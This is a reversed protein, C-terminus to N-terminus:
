ARQGCAGCRCRRGHTGSDINVTTYNVGDTSYAFVRSNFGTSTGRQAWSVNIQQYGKTNVEFVVHMGNNSNGSGGHPALSGGSPYAGIRNTTTGAFSKLYSYAGNSDTQTNFNELYLLGEGEDAPMPFSGSTFGNGGTPLANNNQAWYALTDQAFANFSLLLSGVLAIIYKM